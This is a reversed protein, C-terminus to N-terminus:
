GRTYGSIMPALRFPAGDSEGGAARNLHHESKAELYDLRGPPLEGAPLEVGIRAAWTFLVYEYWRSPVEIANTLSGVDQIQRTYQLVIQDASAPVPWLWLQPQIQKDYWYQLSKNSQFARNPLAMYDDRNYPTMPVEAPVSNFTLASYPPLTGSTDRVRWYQAPGTSDLDQALATGAVIPTQPKLFSAAQVWTINDTSSEVVLAPLSAASFTIQVNTPDVAVTFDYGAWGAGSILSGGTLPTSTRYNLALVDDMGPPLQYTTVGPYLPLVAKKVCWLSVGENTLDTLLFFLSEVASQQLESSMTSPLKGCRRVAHEMLTTVDIVTANVTGSTALAM